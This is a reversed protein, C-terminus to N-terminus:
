GVPNEPPTLEDTDTTTTTTTKVVGGRTASQAKTDAPIRDIAELFLQLGDTIKAMVTIATNGLEILRTGVEKPLSDGILELQKIRTPDAKAWLVIGGFSVGGTLFAIILAAGFGIGASTVQEPSPAPADPTPEVTPEATPEATPEDQVTPAPTEDQAQVAASTWLLALFVVFAALLYYTKRSYRTTTM